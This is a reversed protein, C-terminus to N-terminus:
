IDIRDLNFSFFHFLKLRFFSHLLKPVWTSCARTLLVFRSFLSPLFYFDASPPSRTWSQTRGRRGVRCGAARATKVVCVRRTRMQKSGRLLKRHREPCFGCEKSQTFDRSSREWARKQRCIKQVSPKARQKGGHNMVRDRLGCARSPVQPEEAPAAAGNEKSTACLLLREQGSLRSYTAKQRQVRYAKKM